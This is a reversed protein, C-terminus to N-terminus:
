AAKKSAKKAPVVRGKENVSQYIAKLNEKLSEWAEQNDEYAEQLTERVAEEFALNAEFAQSFTKASTLEKIGHLQAGALTSFVKANRKFLDDFYHVQAEFAEASSKAAGEIFQQINETTLKKM